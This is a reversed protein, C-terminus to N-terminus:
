AACLINSYWFFIKEAGGHPPLIYLLSIVVCLIRFVPEDEGVPTAKMGTNM